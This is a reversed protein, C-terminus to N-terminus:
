ANKVIISELINAADECKDTVTELNEYIAKWKILNIPDKENEFLDAIAERCVLDAENELSNIEVCFDSIHEHKTKEDLQTVARHLTRCSQLIIFALQKAPQTIKTVRYTILHQASANIVDLVTDLSSTLDYIDEREFPTIFSRNLKKILDHTLTDCKHELDKIDHYLHKSEEFNELFNKLSEAGLLITATIEKFLVFFKEERPTLGFM